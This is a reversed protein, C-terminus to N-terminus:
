IGYQAFESDHYHSYSYKHYFKPPLRYDYEDAIMMTLSKKKENDLVNWDDGFVDSWLQKGNRVHFVYKVKGHFTDFVAKSIEGIYFEELKAEFDGVDEDKELLKSFKNEMGNLTKYLELLKPYKEFKFKSLIVEDNKLM